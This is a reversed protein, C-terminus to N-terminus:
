QPKVCYNKNPSDTCNVGYQSSDDWDDSLALSNSELTAGLVYDTKDTDLAYLYSAGNPLTPIQSIFTGLSISGSCGNNASVTLTAPFQNCRDFYVTLVLQLQVVNSVRKSDRGRARAESVNAVIVTSLIGIISIAVLLEIM